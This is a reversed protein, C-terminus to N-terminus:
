RSSGNSSRMSSRELHRDRRAREGAPPLDIRAGKPSVWRHERGQDQRWGRALKPDTLRGLDSLDLGVVLDVDETAPQEDQVWTRYAVAGIVVVDVDLRQCLSQVERFADAEESPLVTM